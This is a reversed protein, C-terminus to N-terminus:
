GGDAVAAGPRGALLAAVDAAPAGLAEVAFRRSVAVPDRAIWMAGGVRGDATVALFGHRGGGPDSVAHLTGAGDQWALCASALSAVDSPLIKGAMEIRWGEGARASAAYDFGALDPRAPTVAFGYWAVAFARVDAVTAKLAPQGSVPDVRPAVVADIRGRSSSRGTWHMPVFVSGAPVRPTVLARVVASGYETAIEVLGAAPIARLAADRPHIECYPEAIHQSLRASKGTRTMTHWHDRVRGTALVLGPEARRPIPVTPVFRFRRDPTFARGDAFMRDAGERTGAPVPWRVPELGDYGARDLDALGGLRLDRRGANLAETLAAHERFIAAPGDWDFGPFGMRRGIEALIWWDPRAAGPAPLFARQRSIRRESNTVTGDKEGWGLAPLLVDAGDATDTEATVDAVVVFPCAAIAAKVRDADPMSVAPNTAMILLARIRGDEVARFLDVAKPGPREALRDTGWFRALRARDEPDDFEGHAALQNALGGVERGGMANPQGTISFATAGPRGIRGTALHVNLIANVRDTGDEAQNVGMSFATVTRATRAVLAYFRALEAEAIGTAAAAGALGVARAATLAERFGATHGEVFGRDVAGTEALFALLGAFLAVDSGPRIALHVDAADTTATRRPDVVVVTMEPRAAKAAMLRQHLVPHCWALNSGVLVVLDALEFDEYTGPVTDTGFARKHGAVASAMCLRSNTDINASGVFGKMLKNAVYYDETLLQGSVYFAVADPGHEAITESFRRAVLDLAEDWGAPRGAIRPELLRDDLSLTEALAAGKACLRGFNAPHDPDGAVTPTGDPGRRALIGCGVGCYACTTRTVSGAPAGAGSPDTTADRKM